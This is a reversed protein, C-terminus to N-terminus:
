GYNIILNYIYKLNNILSTLVYHLFLVISSVISCVIVLLLGALVLKNPNKYYISMINKYSNCINYSYNTFSILSRTSDEQHAQLLISIKSNYSQFIEMSNSKVTTLIPQITFM